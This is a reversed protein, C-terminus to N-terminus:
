IPWLGPTPPDRLIAMDDPDQWSPTVPPAQDPFRRLLDELEADTIGTKKTFDKLWAVFGARDM